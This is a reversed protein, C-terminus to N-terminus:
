VLLDFINAGVLEKIEYGTMEKIAQNAKIIYGNEDLLLMGAPSKYFLKQYHQDNIDLDFWNQKIKEALMM